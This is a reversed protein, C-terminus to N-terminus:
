TVPEGDTVQQQFAELPTRYFSAHGFTHNGLEFGADVWMKLLAARAEHEGERQLKRENVFGIAPIKNSTLTALLKTTFARLDALSTKGGDGTFPLDDFTVAVQRRPTTRPKQAHLDFGLSSSALLTIVLLTNIRAKNIKM